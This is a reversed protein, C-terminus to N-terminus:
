SAIRISCAQGLIYEASLCVRDALIDMIGDTENPAYESWDVKKLADDV